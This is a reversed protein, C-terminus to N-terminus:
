VSKAKVKAPSSLFRVPNAHSLSWAQDRERVRRQPDRSIDHRDTAESGLDPSRESSFRIFM